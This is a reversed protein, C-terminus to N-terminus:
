RAPPSSPARAADALAAEIAHAFVEYPQAGIITRGGIFFSPTSGIGVRVSRQYDASILPRTHGDALCRQLRDHDLPLTRALSDFYAVADGRGKWSAQTAFLADAVPWFRDQEAGCMALEHAPQANRHTAIPFNLYAVRVKGSRVYEREIRPATEDHWRKCFPCQFDSVVVVWVPARDGGKIRGLDARSIVGQRLSDTTAAVEPPPGSDRRPPGDAAANGCAGALLLLATPLVIRLPASNM